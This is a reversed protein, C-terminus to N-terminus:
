DHIVRTGTNGAVALEINEPNTILAETGGGELFKVVARMKPAMSGEAFAFRRIEHASIRRMAAGINPKVFVPTTSARRDQIRTRNGGRGGHRAPRPPAM